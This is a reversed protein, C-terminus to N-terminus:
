NNTTQVPFPDINVIKLKYINNTFKNYTIFLYLKFM